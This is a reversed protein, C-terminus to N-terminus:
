DNDLLEEIVGKYYPYNAFNNEINNKIFEDSDKKAQLLIKNDQVINAIRFEMDGHQRIGFLDGSGRLKLDMESIYFGDNSEVLCDLRESKKDSLLICKSEYSNRGVRGRLQHLTSLGFREANEIVMLTANPVNVGVEVVTTAVLIHVDGKAFAEMVCDKDAAKMKGHMLGVSLDSFVVRQLFDAYETASRLESEEAEEVMPCIVYVQRGQEVQKRM